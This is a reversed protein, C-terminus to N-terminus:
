VACRGGDQFRTAREDIVLIPLLCPCSVRDHRLLEATWWLSERVLLFFQPALEGFDNGGADCCIRVPPGHFDDDRRHRLKPCASDRSSLCPLEGAQKRSKPQRRGVAAPYDSRKHGLRVVFPGIQVLAFAM